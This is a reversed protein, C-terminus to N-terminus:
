SKGFLEVLPLGLIRIILPHFGDESLASCRGEDCARVIGCAEATAESCADKCICINGLTMLSFLMTPPLPLRLFSPFKIGGSILELKRSQKRYEQGTNNSPM